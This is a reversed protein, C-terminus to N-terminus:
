DVLPGGGGFAHLLRLARHVLELMEGSEGILDLVGLSRSASSSRAGHASSGPHYGGHARVM